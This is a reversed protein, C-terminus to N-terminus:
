SRRAAACGCRRRRARTPHLAEAAVGRGSEAVAIDYAHCEADEPHDPLDHFADEDGYVLCLYKM